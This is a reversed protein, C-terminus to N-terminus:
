SLKYVTICHKIYCINSIGIMFYYMRSMTICCVCVAYEIFCEHTEELHLSLIPIELKSIFLYYINCKRYKINVKILM